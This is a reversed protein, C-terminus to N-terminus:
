TLDDIIRNQYLEYILKKNGNNDLLGNKGHYAEHDFLSFHYIELLNLPAFTELIIQTRELQYQETYKEYDPNPAGYESILIPTDVLNSFLNVLDDFLEAEDYMHLDAIDYFSENLIRDIRTDLGESIWTNMRNMFSDLRQDADILKRNEREIDLGYTEFLQYYLYGSTMAGLVVNLTPKISKTITYLSNTLGIFDDTSHTYGEEPNDWENGFQIKTIKDQYRFVLKTIFSEFAAQHTLSIEDNNSTQYVEPLNSAVSLFIEIDNEIFTNIRYDLTEWTYQGIEKEIFQWNVEMKIKDIHLAKLHEISLDQYEKTSIAPFSIGIPMSISIIPIDEKQCSSLLLPISMLLIFGLIKTLISKNFVTM